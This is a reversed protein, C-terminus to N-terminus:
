AQRGVLRYQWHGGGLCRREIQHGGFRDKRLDRIRASVAAESGDVVAALSKLGWWNGDCMAVYVRELQGGLRKQDRAPNYTAGDFEASEFMRKMAGM